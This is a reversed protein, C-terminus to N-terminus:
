EQRGHEKAVRTVEDQIGDMQEGQEKPSSGQSNAVVLIAVFFSGAVMVLFGISIWWGMHWLTAELGLLTLFISLVVMGASARLVKKSRRQRMAELISLPPIQGNGTFGEKLFAQTLEDEIHADKLERALRLLM